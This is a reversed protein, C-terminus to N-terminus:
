KVNTLKGNRQIKLLINIVLLFKIFIKYAIFMYAFDVIHGELM